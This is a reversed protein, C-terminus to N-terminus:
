PKKPKTTSATSSTTSATAKKTTSATTSAVVPPTPLLPTQGEILTTKYLFANQNINAKFSFSVNGESDLSPSSIMPNRIYRANEPKAFEASQLAVAEFGKAQGTMVVAPGSAGAVYSFSSFRVNKLTATSLFNLFASLSIHQDLLQRVSEIRLDLRTLESMLSPDFKAIEAKLNTKTTDISRNLFIKYAFLGAGLALVTLFIVISVLSFFSGHRTPKPVNDILPKKPIFSTQQFNGEM